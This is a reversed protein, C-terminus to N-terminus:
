RQIRITAIRTIRLMDEFVACASMETEPNGYGDGDADECIILEKMEEDVLGDCDNDLLDCM